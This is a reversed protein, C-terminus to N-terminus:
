RRTRFPNPVERDTRRTRLVGIVVGAVVLGAFVAVGFM